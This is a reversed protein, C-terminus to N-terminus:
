EGQGEVADSANVGDPIGRATDVEQSWRLITQRDDGETMTSAVSRLWPSLGALPLPADPLGVGDKPAYSNWAEAFAKVSVNIAATGYTSTAAAIAQFTRDYPFETAHEAKYDALPCWAPISMDDNLRSPQVKMCEYTGGSYYHRNPCDKCSNVLQVIKTM